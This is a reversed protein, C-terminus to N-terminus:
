CHAVPLEDLRTTYRPARFQERRRWHPAPRANALTLSGRGFRRNIQDLTAMLAQSRDVASPDAFLDPQREIARTLDLLIVGAKVYSPGPKYLRNLGARAAAVLARTDATPAAM